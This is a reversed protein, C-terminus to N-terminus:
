IVVQELKIPNHIKSKLLIVTVTNVIAL